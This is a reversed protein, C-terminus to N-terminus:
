RRSGGSWKYYLNFASNVGDLCSNIIKSLPISFVSAFFRYQESLIVRTFEVTFSKRVTQSDTSKYKKEAPKPRMFSFM